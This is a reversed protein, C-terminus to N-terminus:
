PQDNVADRRVWPVPKTNGAFGYPPLLTQFSGQYNISHLILLTLYHRSLLWADRALGDLHYIQDHPSQPHVLRNRVATVAAPGDPLNEATAFIALAPVADADIDTSIQARELLTRLRREGPWIQSNKYQRRPVVGDLVLTVWALNELAPFAALIRQEVFGEEVCQVALIMQFRTIGPRSPDLFAPLAREILHALDDSRTRYLWASGNTQQAPDCIPATWEEWVVHDTNDYGVPLAPAVWRGLAFSCSVRLCELLQRASDVSFDEGDVRQIDMVHTLMFLTSFRAGALATDYDHRRDLTLRWGGLEMFWRGNWCHSEGASETEIRRNGLFSPLNIWHVTVRNLQTDPTVLEAHNIWGGGVLDGYATVPWEREGRRLMLEVTGTSPRIEHPDHEVRWRLCPKDGLVLEVVGPLEDETLGGVPGDYLVISNNPTDFPYIPQLQPEIDEDPFLNQWTENV